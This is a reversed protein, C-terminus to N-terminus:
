EASEDEWEEFKNRSASYLSNGAAFLGGDWLFAATGPNRKALGWGVAALTLGIAANVPLQTKGLTAVDSGDAWKADVAACGLASAAVGTAGAVRVMVSRKEERQRKTRTQIATQLKELQKAPKSKALNGMGLITATRRM